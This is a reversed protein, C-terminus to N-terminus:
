KTELLRLLTGHLFEMSIKRWVDKWWHDHCRRTIFVMFLISTVGCVVAPCGDGGRAAIPLTVCTITRSRQNMRKQSRCLHHRLLSASTIGLHQRSTSEIEGASHATWHSQLLLHRRRLRWLYHPPYPAFCSMGKPALPSPPSLSSYPSSASTCLKGPRCIWTRTHMPYFHDYVDCRFAATESGPAGGPQDEEWGRELDHRHGWLQYLYTM